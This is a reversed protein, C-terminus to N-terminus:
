AMCSGNLGSPTGGVFTTTGSATSFEVWAFYHRGLGPVGQYSAVMPTQYNIGAAAATTRRVGTAEANTADLGISQYAVVGATSNYFASHMAVEVSDEALGCLVEVQNAAAANAQRFTATTYTWTATADHKKLSRRARHYYNWLFRKAESDETTTTATTYFTGLYRRTTAGSKVLVGDQYVLATARTTDNTWVLFELTPTGANDYCFVDYPKGSVLTGLALSFQASQRV